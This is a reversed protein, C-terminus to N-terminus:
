YGKVAELVTDVSNAYDEFTQYICIDPLLTDHEYDPWGIYYMGEDILCYMAGVNEAAKLARIFDICNYDDYYTEVRSNRDILYPHGFREDLFM